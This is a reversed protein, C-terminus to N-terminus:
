CYHFVIGSQLKKLKEYKSHIDLENKTFKSALNYKIVFSIMNESGLSHKCMHCVPRVNKLTAEGGNIRPVIYAYSFQRFTTMGNSCMYCYAGYKLWINITLDTM